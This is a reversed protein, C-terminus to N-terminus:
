YFWECEFSAKDRHVLITQQCDKEQLEHEYKLLYDKQSFMPFPIITHISSLVFADILTSGLEAEVTATCLESHVHYAFVVPFVFLFIFLQYCHPENFSYHNCLYFMCVHM